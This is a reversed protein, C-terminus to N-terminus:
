FLSAPDLDVDYDVAPAPDVRVYRNRPRDAWGRPDYPNAAKCAKCRRALDKTLNRGRYEFMDGCETCYTSWTLLEVSKGRRNVHPYSEVLQHIQILDAGREIRVMTGPERPERGYFIAGRVIFRLPDSM